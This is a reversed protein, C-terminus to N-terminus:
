AGEYQSNQVRTWRWFKQDLCLQSKRVSENISRHFRISHKVPMNSPRRLKSRSWSGALTCAQSASAQLLPLRTALSKRTWKCNAQPEKMDALHCPHQSATHCVRSAMSERTFDCRGCIFM